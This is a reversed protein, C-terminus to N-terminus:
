RAQVAYPLAAEVVAQDGLHEALALGVQQISPQVFGVDGRQGLDSFLRTLSKDKHL